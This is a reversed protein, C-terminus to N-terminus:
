AKIPELRNGQAQSLDEEITLPVPEVELLQTQSKARKKYERLEKQMQFIGKGAAKQIDPGM